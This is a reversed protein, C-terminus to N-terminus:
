PSPALPGPPPRRGRPQYLWGLDNQANPHGLEAARRYWIAANVYDPPKSRYCALGQQYHNEGPRASSQAVAVAPAVLWVGIALWVGLCTRPPRM